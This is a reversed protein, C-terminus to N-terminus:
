LEFGSPSTSLFILIFYFFLLGVNIHWVEMLTPIKFFIMYFAVEKEWFSHILDNLMINMILM